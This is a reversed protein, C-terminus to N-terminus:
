VKTSTQECKNLKMLTTDSITGSIAITCNDVRLKRVDTKTHIFGEDM